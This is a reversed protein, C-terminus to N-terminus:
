YDPGGSVMLRVSRGRKIRMNGHPDQRVVTGEPLTSPITDVRALPIGSRALSDLAEQLPLGTVDPLFVEQGHRTYPPMVCRDVFLFSLSSLLVLATAFGLARDRWDRVAENM